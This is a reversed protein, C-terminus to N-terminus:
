HSMIGVTHFAVQLHDSLDGQDYSYSGGNSSPVVGEGLSRFSSIAALSAKSVYRSIYTDLSNSWRKFRGMYWPTGHETGHQESKIFASYAPVKFSAYWGYIQPVLIVTSKSANHDELFTCIVGEFLRKINRWRVMYNTRAGLALSAGDPAHSEIWTKSAASRPRM